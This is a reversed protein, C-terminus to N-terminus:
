FWGQAHIERIASVHFFMHLTFGFQIDVFHARIFSCKMVKLLNQTNENINQCVINLLDYNNHGNAWGDTREVM